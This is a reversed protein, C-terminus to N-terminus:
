VKQMYAGHKILTKMADINGNLTAAMLASYNDLVANADAGKRLLSELKKTDGSRITQFLQANAESTSFYNSQAIASYSFLLICVFYLLRLKHQLFNNKM